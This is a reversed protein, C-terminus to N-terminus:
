MRQFSGFRGSHIWGCASQPLFRQEGTEGSVRGRSPGRRTGPRDVGGVRDGGHEDARQRGGAAVQLLRLAFMRGSVNRRASPQRSALSRGTVCPRSGRSGARARRRSRRGGACCAGRARGARRAGRCRRGRSGARLDLVQEVEQLPQPRIWPVMSAAPGRARRTRSGSWGARCAARRTARGGPGRGAAPPTGPRARDARGAARATGTARRAPRRRCASCRSATPGASRRRGAWARARASRRGSRARSRSCCRQPALDAGAADCVTWTWSRTAPRRSRRPLGHGVDRGAISPRQDSRVM